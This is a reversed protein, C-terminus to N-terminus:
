KKEEEEFIKISDGAKLRVYAKKLSSREGIIPRAKRNGLRISRAKKGQQVVINVEEVTVGYQAQIADKIQMKNSDKPVVFVYTQNLISQQYAKESMRPTINLM